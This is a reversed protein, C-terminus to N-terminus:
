TKGHKDKFQEVECSHALSLIKMFEVVLDRQTQITMSQQSNKSTLTRGVDFNGQNKMLDDFKKDKWEAEGATDEVEELKANHM